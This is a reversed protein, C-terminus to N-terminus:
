FEYWVCFGFISVYRSKCARNHPIFNEPGYSKRSYKFNYLFFQM